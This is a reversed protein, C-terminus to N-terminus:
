GSNYSSPNLTFIVKIAGGAAPLPAKDLIIKSSDSYSMLTKDLGSEDDNNTGIIKMLNAKLIDFESETVEYTESVTSDVLYYNCVENYTIVCNGSGILTCSDDPTFDKEISYKLEENNADDKKSYMSITPTKIYKISGADNATDTDGGRYLKNYADQYAKATKQFDTLEDEDKNPIETNYTQSYTGVSMECLSRALYAARQIDTGNVAADTAYKSSKFMVPLLLTLVLLVTLVAILAIGNRQTLIKM